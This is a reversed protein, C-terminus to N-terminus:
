LSPKKHHVQLEPTHPLANFVSVLQFITSNEAAEAKQGCFTVFQHVALSVNFGQSNVCDVPVEIFVPAQNCWPLVVRRNSSL